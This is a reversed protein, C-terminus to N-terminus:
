MVNVNAPLKVPTPSFYLRIAKKFRAIAQRRTKGCSACGPLEPCSAAYARTKRDYELVIRLNLSVKMFM